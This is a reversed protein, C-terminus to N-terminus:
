SRGRRTESAIKEAVASSASTTRRREATQAPRTSTTASAAPAAVTTNPASPHPSELARSDAFYAEGFVERRLYAVLAEVNPYDFALTAPLTRALGRRLRNRLEISSLSDMGQEFFGRDTALLAVDDIGAAKAVEARVYDTLMELRSERAAADLRASFAAGADQLTRTARM